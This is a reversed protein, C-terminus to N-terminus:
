LWRRVQQAYRLYEGGFARQLYAEEPAIVGVNMVGIVVPSLALAWWSDLLLALGVYLLVDSVYIPNRSFRFLGDTVITTTGKYPDVPTHARLLTRIAATLGLAGCALVLAGSVVALPRTLVQTPWLWELLLGVGLVGLYIVPPPAVIGARGTAACQMTEDM